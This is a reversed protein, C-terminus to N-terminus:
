EHSYYIFFRSTIYMVRRSNLAHRFTRKATMEQKMWCYLVFCFVRFKQDDKGTSKRIIGGSNKLSECSHITRYLLVRACLNKWTSYILGERHSTELHYLHDGVAGKRIGTGHRKFKRKRGIRFKLATYVSCLVRCALSWKSVGMKQFIMKMWFCVFFFFLYFRMSYTIKREKKNKEQKMWVIRTALLCALAM